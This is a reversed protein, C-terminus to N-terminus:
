TFFNSLKMKIIVNILCQFIVNQEKARIMFKDLTLREFPILNADEFLVIDKGEINWTGHALANRFKNDVYPRLKEWSAPAAEKITKCFNAVKYDVDQCHFLLFIKFLEIHLICFLAITHIYMNVWNSEQFGFKATADLFEKGERDTIAHLLLNYNQSLQTVNTLLNCLHDLESKSYVIKIKEKKKLEELLEILIPEIESWLKKEALGLAERNLVTMFSNTDNENM